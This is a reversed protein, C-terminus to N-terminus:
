NVEYDYKLHYILSCMQIKILFMSICKVFSILNKILNDNLVGFAVLSRSASKVVNDLVVIM